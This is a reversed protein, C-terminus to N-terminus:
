RRREIEEATPWIDGCCSPAQRRRGQRAARDHLDVDCPAPSPTPSARAAPSVLFNAKINPHIRAEFNRNGSLVSAACSTATRQRRRRHETDLPGSNGICTTCGYGVLTSASSRWTPCAPRDRDPLRHRRAIGARPSTKVSPKVTLGREVRRRPSCAPPSCARRPQSTNTCRPSPPSRARRRPRDTLTGGKRRTRSVRPLLERGAEAGPQSFGDSAPQPSASCTKSASAKVGASSSATRRASRAPWRQARRHRPRPRGGPTFDLQAADDPMGFLGQAKFYAEVADIQTRAHPRHRRPLRHHEDDIPFFGMRRATSRAGHQRHHRPGAPRLSRLATASSSSSSAWWRTDQAATETVACCSTPPPSARPAARGDLQVGVVDPILFYVPQGLM